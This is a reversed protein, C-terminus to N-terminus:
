KDDQETNDYNKVNINDNSLNFQEDTTHSNNAASDNKDSHNRNFFRTTEGLLRRSLKNLRLIYSLTFGIGVSVSAQIINPVFTAIASAFSGYLLCDTFYYMIVMIAGALLMSSFGVLMEIPTNSKKSKRFFHLATGVILGEIAKIILTFPAYMPALILDIIMAGLGGAIAAPLGGLCVAALYIVSDGFNIYGGGPIPITIAITSVATLAAFLATLCLMKINITSEKM